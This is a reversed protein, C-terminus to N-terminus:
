ASEKEDSLFRYWGDLEAKDNEDYNVSAARATSEPLVGTKAVTRFLEKEGDRSHFSTSKMTNRKSIFEIVNM